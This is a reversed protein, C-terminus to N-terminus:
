NTNTEIESTRYAIQLRVPEEKHQITKLKLEISANMLAQFTFGWNLTYGKDKNTYLLNGKSDTILIEIISKVNEPCVKIKYKLEPYFIVNIKAAKSNSTLLMYEQGNSAFSNEPRPCKNSQSIALGCYFTLLFGLAINKSVRIM